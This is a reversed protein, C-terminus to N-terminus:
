INAAFRTLYDNDRIPWMQCSVFIARSFTAQIEIWKLVPIFYNSPGADFCNSKKQKFGSSFYFRTLTRNCRTYTKYLTRESVNQFHQAQDNDRSTQCISGSRFREQWLVRLAATSYPFKAEWRGKTHTENRHAAGRTWQYSSRIYANMVAIIM